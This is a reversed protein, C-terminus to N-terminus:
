IIKSSVCWFDSYLKKLQAKANIASIEDYYLGFCTAGSGSMRALLCGKTKGIAEIIEGIIPLIKIAPKELDNQYNKIDLGIGLVESFESGFNNFVESTALPIKPNILVIHYKELLGIPTIKEGVGSMFAPKGYLCVPVDSGLSSAIELLKQESIDMQWLNCLLKITAAADASGGGIGSAIPLNKALTIKAGQKTSSYNQLSKAAKIVLNNEAPFKQLDAAFEGIIELSLNDDEVADLLDGYETFVVISELLHYGDQRKGVM